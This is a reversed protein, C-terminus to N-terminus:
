HFVEFPGVGFIEQKGRWGGRRETKVRSGEPRADVLSGHTGDGMGRGSRCGTRPTGRDWAMALGKRRLKMRGVNLAFADVREFQFPEIFFRSRASALFRRNKEGAVESIKEGDQRAGRGRWRPLPTEGSRLRLRLAVMWWLVAVYVWEVVQTRGQARGSSAM